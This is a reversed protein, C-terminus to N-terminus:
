IKVADQLAALASKIGDIEEQMTDMRDVLLTDDYCSTFVSMAMASMVM